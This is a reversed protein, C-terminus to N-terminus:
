REAAVSGTGPAVSVRRERGRRDTLVIVGGETRGDPPFLLADGLSTSIRSDSFRDVAPELHATVGGPLPVRAIRGPLLGTSGGPQGASRTPVASTPSAPSTSAVEEDEIVLQVADPESEVIMAVTAGRSVATERAFRASAVVRATTGDLDGQRGGQYLTPVVMAALVVLAVLVVLLEVLTFGSTGNKTGTRSM